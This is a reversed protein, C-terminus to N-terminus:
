REIGLVALVLELDARDPSRNSPLLLVRLGAGIAGGDTLANDGVMLARDPAVGLERCAALFLEPHPKVRGHEHSLVFADVPPDDGFHHRFVPRLDYGTDSVVAVPIRAGRLAALVGATDAFLRHSQPQLCREYVAEPVHDGYRPFPAFLRTWCERHRAASLDRAQAIEEPSRARADIERWLERLGVEDIEPALDRLEHVPLWPWEWLTGGADLLVADIM